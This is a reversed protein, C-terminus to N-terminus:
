VTPDQKNMRYMIAQMQKGWGGVEIFFYIFLIKFLPSALAGLTSCRSGACALALNSEPDGRCTPPLTSVPTPVASINPELGMAWCGRQVPGM